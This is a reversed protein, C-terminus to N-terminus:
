VSSPVCSTSLLCMSVHVLRLEPLLPHPQDDSSLCALAGNTTM